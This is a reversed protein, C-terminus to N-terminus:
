NQWDMRRWGTDALIKQELERAMRAHAGIAPHGDCVTDEPDTTREFRILSIRSDGKGRRGSVAKEISAAAVDRDDAKLMPGVAAYIMAEPSTARVAELLAKYAKTFEEPRAGGLFDNTGLHVVVVQASPLPAKVSSSPLQRHVVREMTQRTNGDYNRVLGAGSVALTIVDADLNRAAVAAYTLYQNQMNGDHCNAAAGAELGYGASISDGIVLIRPRDPPPPLMQGDTRVDLLVTRGFTAETRRILRVVYTSPADANVLRYSHPGPRTRLRSAKGNVEIVLDNDGSDFLKVDLRAGKFRIEILSGPWEATIGRPGTEFRGVLRVKDSLVDHQVPLAVAIIVCAGFAAAAWVSKRLWM